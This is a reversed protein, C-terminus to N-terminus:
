ITRPPLSCVNTLNWTGGSDDSRCRRVGKGGQVVEESGASSVLEDRRENRGVGSVEEERWHGGDDGGEGESMLDTVEEIREQDDSM